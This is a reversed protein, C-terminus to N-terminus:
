FKSPHQTTYQTHVQINHSSCYFILVFFFLYIFLFTPLPLDAMNDAMIPSRSCPPPWMRTFPSTAYAAWRAQTNYFFFHFFSFVFISFQQALRSVCLWFSAFLPGCSKFFYICYFFFSVFHKRARYCKTRHAKRGCTTCSPLCFFGVCLFGNERERVFRDRERVRVCIRREREREWWVCIRRERERERDRMRVCCTMRAQARSGSKSVSPPPSEVSIPSFPILKTFFLVNERREQREWACTVINKVSFFIKM